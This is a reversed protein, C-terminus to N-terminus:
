SETAGTGCGDQEGVEKGKKLVPVVAEAKVQRKKAEAKYATACKNVQGLDFCV